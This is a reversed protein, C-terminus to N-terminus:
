QKLDLDEYTWYIKHSSVNGTHDVSHISYTQYGAQTLPDFDTTTRVLPNTYLHGPWSDGIFHM